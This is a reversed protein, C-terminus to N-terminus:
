RRRIERKLQEYEEDIDLSSAAPLEPFSTRVAGPLQRKMRELEDDIKSNGELAKFREEINPSGISSEALEGAIQAQSELSEVKEKMREFAEMSSSTKLTSLMDNVQMSTKATRARAIFAEKQRKAETIKSELAQM